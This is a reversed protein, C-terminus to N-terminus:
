SKCVQFKQQDRFTHLAESHINSNRTTDAVLKVLSSKFRSAVTISLEQVDIPFNQLEIREWFSGRATRTETIMKRQDDVQTVKYAFEEKVDHLANELYLKPYWHKKPDYEEFDEEDPEQQVHYWKCKIRVTAQYKENMTDVEGINEFDIRVWVVRATVSSSCRYRYTLRMSEANSEMSNDKNLSRMKQMTLLINSTKKSVSKKRNPELSSNTLQENENM